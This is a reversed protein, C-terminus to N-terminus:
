IICEIKNKYACVVIKMEEYNNFNKEFTDKVAYSMAYTYEDESKSLNASM